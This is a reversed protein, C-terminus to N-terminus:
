EHRLYQKLQQGTLVQHAYRILKLRYRERYPANFNHYCAVKGFFDYHRTSCVQLKENLVIGAALANGLNSNTIMKPTLGYRKLSPFHMSNVQFVGCDRTKGRPICQGTTGGEVKMILFLALIPTNTVKAAHEIVAYPVPPPLDVM